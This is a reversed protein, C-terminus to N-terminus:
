GWMDAYRYLKLFTPMKETGVNDMVRVKQDNWSFILFSDKYFCTLLTDYKNQMQIDRYEFAVRFDQTLAESISKVAEEYQHQKDFTFEYPFFLLM